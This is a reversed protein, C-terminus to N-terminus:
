SLRHAPTNLLPRRPPHQGPRLSYLAAPHSLLGGGGMPERTKSPPSCRGEGDAFCRLLSITGRGSEM